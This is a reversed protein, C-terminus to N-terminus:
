GSQDARYPLSRTDARVTYIATLAVAVVVVVIALANIEQTGLVSWTLDRAAGSVALIMMVNTLIVLLFTIARAKDESWGSSLMLAHAVIILASIVGGSLVSVVIMSRSFLASGLKRPPKDM